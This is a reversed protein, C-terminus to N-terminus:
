RRIPSSTVGASCLRAATSSTNRVPRSTGKKFWVLDAIGSGDSVHAVLRSRHFGMDFVECSLLKACIQVSAADPTLESIRYIHRRDIYKYPYHELLDEYTKIGLEKDLLAKRRPGVGPLFQIDQDLIDLM